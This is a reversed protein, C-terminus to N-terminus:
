IKIKEMADQFSLANGYLEGSLDKAIMILFNFLKNRDRILKKAEQYQVRYAEVEQELRFDVDALYRKWWGKPDNGQQKSHTEEHKMLTQDIKGGNPNYIVDGYTFVTNGGPKLGAELISKLIPPNEHLVRM